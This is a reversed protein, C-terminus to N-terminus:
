FRAGFSFRYLRPQQYASSSVPKGFTPSLAYNVGLVPKDTFPNFPAYSSSTDASNVTTNIFAPNAVGQRNFVNLMQAEAFLEARGIPYRYNVSLNTSSINDVRYAGRASFYYQNSALPTVYHSNAPLLTSLYSTLDVSGLASYPLASDYSELVSVNLAGTLRPMPGSGRGFATVSM